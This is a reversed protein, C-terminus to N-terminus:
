KSGSQSHWTAMEAARDSLTERLWQPDLVEAHVGLEWVAWEAHRFDQFVAGVRLWGGRDESEGVVALATKWLLDRHSPDVRLEVRAQEGGSRFGESRERWLEDLEVREPRIAPEPLCEAASVRSLRYTRDQDDRTALLYVQERVRVLGIPDVTRWMPERDPASYCIRLKQGGVVARRVEGAVAEGVDSPSIERSLLDIDPDLLIRESALHAIDRHAEPLADLVKLVASALASGLGISQVGKRSAAVILALSEEFNLGTLETRFGPLLEFGGNRGPEAYIPVGSLSLAEIDRMITRQSVELETALTSASLRGRSRLLLVM